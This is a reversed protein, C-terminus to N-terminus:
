IAGSSGNPTGDIQRDDHELQQTAGIDADAIWPNIDIPPTGDLCDIADITIRGTSADVDMLRVTAIAIPNPRAPSRLAFVGAAASRHRPNQVILDRRSQQMWYLVIAHSNDQLGDLGARSVEDVEITAPQRRERARNMNKPCQDRSKWASRIRGIFIVSADNATESPNFPLAIEGTRVETDTM